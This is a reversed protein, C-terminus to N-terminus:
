EEEPFSSVTLIDPPIHLFNHFFDNHCSGGAHDTRSQDFFTYFLVYLDICNYPRRGPLLATQRVATQYMQYVTTQFSQIVKWLQDRRAAIGKVM